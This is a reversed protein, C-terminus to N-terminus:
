LPRLWRRFFAHRKPGRVRGVAIGFHRWDGDGRHNKRGMSSGAALATRTRRWGTGGRGPYAQRPWEIEISLPTGSKCYYYSPSFNGMRKELSSLYTQAATQYEGMNPLDSLFESSLAIDTTKSGAEFVLHFTRSDNLPIVQTLKTQGAPPLLRRILAIGTNSENRM